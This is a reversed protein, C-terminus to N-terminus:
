ETYVSYLYYSVGDITKFTYTIKKREVNNNIGSILDGTMIIDNGSYKYNFNNQLIATDSNINMGQYISYEGFTDIFEETPTTIGYLVKIRDINALSLAECNDITCNYFGIEKADVLMDREKSYIYVINAKDENSLSDNVIGNVKSLINQLDYNNNYVGIVSLLDNKTEESIIKESVKNNSVFISNSINNGINYGSAVIFSIGILVISWYIYKINM